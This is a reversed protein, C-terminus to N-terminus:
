ARARGDRRSRRGGRVATAAYAVASPRLGTGREIATSGSPLSSRAASRASSCARSSGRRTTTSACCTASARATAPASEPTTRGFSTGYWSHPTTSSEPVQGSPASSTSSRRTQDGMGRRSDSGSNRTSFPGVLDVVARRLFITYSVARNWLNATPSSRRRGAGMLSLLRRQRRIGRGARSAMSTRSTRTTADASGARPSRRANRATTTLSPSSTPRPSTPGPRCEARALPRREARLRVIEIGTIIPGRSSPPQFGITTTRISSSSGFRETRGSGSSRSSCGDPSTWVISRRSFSTSRPLGRWALLM